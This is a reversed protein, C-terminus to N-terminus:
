KKKRDKIPSAHEFRMTNGGGFQVGSLNNATISIGGYSGAPAYHWPFLQDQQGFGTDGQHFGYPPQQYHHYGPPYTSYMPFAFTDSLPRQKNGRLMTRRPAQVESLYPNEQETGEAKKRNHLSQSRHLTGSSNRRFVVEPPVAENQMSSPEELHLTEFHEELGYRSPFAQHDESRVPALSPGKSCTFFTAEKRSSNEKQMLIDQVERVAPKMKWEYCFCVVEMEKSCDRFGPRQEKENSWCRRMLDILNGLKQVQDVQKELDETLPRQGRPIHMRILSSMNAHHLNHYPEQGSLVSWMLIGYSYVDTSPSPKYSFNNFAEPPMFELTGGYDGGEGSSHDGQQTTGRKFKSLGFDSVRVHLDGDLLVNSPKLDLHLLPPRLNHLFNMGLAVQYLIRFRLAWPMSPVQYMLSSLNGNEMYEMVLGLSPVAAPAADTDAQERGVFLGFLRLVYIFRAKEMAQAEKLLEERTFSSNRSLFKIAVDIGWEQHRARFINGFSGRGIFSFNTLDEESIQEYFRNPDAM